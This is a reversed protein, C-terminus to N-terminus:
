VGKAPASSVDGTEEVPIMTVSGLIQRIGSDRKLLDDFLQEKGRPARVSRVVLQTM